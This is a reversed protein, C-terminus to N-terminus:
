PFSIGSKEQYYAWIKEFTAKRWIRKGAQLENERLVCPEGIKHADLLTKANDELYVSGLFVGKVSEAVVVAGHGRMIAARGQGLVAALSNGKEATDVHTCDDYVPVGAAFIAGHYIVPVYDKGAASLAMIAPPHLHAVANVDPRRRYISMHIYIELPLRVGAELSEGVTSAKTIDEPRLVHRSKGYPNILITNTGPVRASVHGSFDILGMYELMRVCTAVEVQLLVEDM